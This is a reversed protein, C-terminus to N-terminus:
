QHNSIETKTPRNLLADVSAKAPQKQHLIRYVETAIPMDIHHQELLAHLTKSAEIGEIVQDIEQCAQEITKGQGIALGFRRNRSQNDSCTLILDGLGSLGSLTEAKAGLKQGLRTMEALGRTILGAKANMGYGLGDAIGVAIAIVNKTAGGIQAGIPDNSRYVRFYDANFYQAMQQAFSQQESAIVVATPLQQGVEKAFSPGTLIAQPIHNGITQTVLESLFQGTDPTLGKTAWILGTKEKPWHQHVQLLVSQFAHSPVAILVHDSQKIATILNPEISLTSPFTANPLYRQNCRNASMADCHERERSWLTIRHNNRALVLALATGWAGAGIVTFDYQQPM